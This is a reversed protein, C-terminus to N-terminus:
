HIKNSIQVNDRIIDKRQQFLIESKLFIGIVTLVQSTKEINPQISLHVNPIHHFEYSTDQREFLFYLMQKLFKKLVTNSNLSNFFEYFYQFSMTQRTKNIVIIVNATRM